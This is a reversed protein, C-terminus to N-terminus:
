WKRFVFFLLRNPGKFTILQQSWYGMFDLIKKANFTAEMGNQIQTVYDTDHEALLQDLVWPSLDGNLDAHYLVSDRYSDFENMILRRLTPM